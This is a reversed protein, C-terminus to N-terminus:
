GWVRWLGILNHHEQWGTGVSARLITNGAVEDTSVASTHADKEGQETLHKWPKGPLKRYNFATRLDHSNLSNM